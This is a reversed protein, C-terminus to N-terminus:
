SQLYRQLLVMGYFHKNYRYRQLLVMGYFHKNYRNMFCDTM